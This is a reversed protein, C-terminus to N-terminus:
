ALWADAHIHGHATLLLCRAWWCLVGVRGGAAPMRTEWPPGPLRTGGGGVQDLKEGRDLVSEITKHLIIKTEDLDRQIKALKDAAEPNQALPPPLPWVDPLLCSLCTAHTPQPLQLGATSPSNTCAGLGVPPVWWAQRGGQLPGGGCAQLERAM